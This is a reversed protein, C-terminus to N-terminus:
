SGPVFGPPNGVQSKLWGIGPPDLKTYACLFFL